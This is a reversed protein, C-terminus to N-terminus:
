VLRAEQVTHTLPKECYVHRGARLAMLTAIAHTHDPTAVVVADLDQQELLLRFDSYYKAQPYLKRNKAPRGDIPDDVDCLAVIEAGAKAVERLDYDGQAAIGIVGVHLRDNASPKKDEAPARGSWFGTAGLAGSAVATQLFRRRSHRKTMVFR